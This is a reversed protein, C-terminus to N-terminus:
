TNSLFGLETNLYTPLVNYPFGNTKSSEGAEDTVYIWGIDNVASNVYNQTLASSTANYAFIGWQSSTTTPFGGTTNGEVINSISPLGRGEYPTIIDVTGVYSSNTPDGPNGVVTDFGYSHAFSTVTSYYSPGGKNYGSNPYNMQDLFIGSLLNPYFRTWNYIAQETSNFTSYSGLPRDGYDTWVYGIMIIGASSLNKMGSTYTSGASDGPGSDPNVIVIVPVSPYSNKANILDQWYTHGTNPDNTTPDMYLPVLLGMVFNATISATSSGGSTVTLTTGNDVTSSLSGGSSSWISFANGEPHVFESFYFKYNGCIYHNYKFTQSQGNVFGNINGVNSPNTYYYITISYNCYNCGIGTNPNCVLPGDKSSYAAVDPGISLSLMLISLVVCMLVKQKSM